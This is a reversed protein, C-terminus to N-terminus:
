QHQQEVVSDEGGDMENEEEYDDGEEQQGYYEYSDVVENGRM